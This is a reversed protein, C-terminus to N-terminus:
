DLSACPIRGEWVLMNVPTFPRRHWWVSEPVSQGQAAQRPASLTLARHSLRQLTLASGCPLLWQSHSDQVQEGCEGLSFIRCKPEVASFAATSGDGWAFYIRACTVAM